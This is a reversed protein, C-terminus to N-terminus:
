RARKKKAKVSRRLEYGFEQLEVLSSLRQDVSKRLNERLLTRDVDRKYREVIPDPAATPILEVRIAFGAAAVLREITTLTPSAQGSELRAIAPQSTGARDALQQQTLGARTRAEMVVSGADMDSM